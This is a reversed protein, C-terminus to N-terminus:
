KIIKNIKEYVEKLSKEYKSTEKPYYYISDKIKDPMYNQKVLSNPYNHPYLYGINPSKIISPVKELLM